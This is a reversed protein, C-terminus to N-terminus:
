LFSYKYALVMGVIMFIWLITAVFLLYKVREIMIIDAQASVKPPGVWAQKILWGDIDKVKGGFVLNLAYSVIGVSHLGGMSAGRIARLSNAFPVFLCALILAVFSLPVSFLGVVKLILRALLSSGKGFGNRDLRWMNYALASLIFAGFMDMVLYGVSPLVVMWEFSLAAGGTVARVIGAEDLGNLDIRSTAAVEFYARSDTKKDKLTKHIHGMVRLYAGSSMTFSLLVVSAIGYFPVSLVIYGTARAVLLAVFLICLTILGGRFVLDGRTKNEKFAKSCFRGFFVDLLSWFFPLGTGRVGGFMAGILLSMLLAVVLIAAREPFVNILEIIFNSNMLDNMTIVIGHAKESFCGL